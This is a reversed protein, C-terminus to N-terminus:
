HLIWFSAFLLVGFIILGAIGGLVELTDNNEMNRKMKIMGLYVVPFESKWIIECTKQYFQNINQIYRTSRSPNPALPVPTLSSGIEVWGGNCVKTV